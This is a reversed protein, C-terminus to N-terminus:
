HRKAGQALLEDTMVLRAKQIIALPVDVEGSEEVLRVKTGDALGVLRGKFRRRGAVAAKTELKAVFGAFRTYDEPRTLPRDIGPSSVELTYTSAILDEVDLLASVTRSIRACDEVSMPMGDRREAMVQLVPRHRGSLQIRVIAYGLAEISPTLMREIRDM